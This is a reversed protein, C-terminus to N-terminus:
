RKMERHRRFKWTRSLVDEDYNVKNQFDVIGM